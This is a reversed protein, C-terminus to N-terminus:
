DIKRCDLFSEILVQGQSFEDDVFIDINKAIYAEPYNRRNANRILFRDDEVFRINKLSFDFSNKSGMEYFNQDFYRFIAKERGLVNNIVMDAKTILPTEHPLMTHYHNRGIKSMSERDARVFYQSTIQIRHLKPAQTFNIQYKSTPYEDCSYQGLYLENYDSIGAMFQNNLEQTKELNVRVYRGFIMGLDGNAQAFQPIIGINLIILLFISKM